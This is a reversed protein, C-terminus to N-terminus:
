SRRRDISQRGYGAVEAVIAAVPGGGAGAREAAHARAAEADMDKRMRVYALKEFRSLARFWHMGAEHEGIRELLEVTRVRVERDKHFLGLAVYFLGAHSEPAVTLLLCVEDYSHVHKALAMYIERSQQPSLRQTRLRDHM